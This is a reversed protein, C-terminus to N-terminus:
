VQICPLSIKIETCKSMYSGITISGEMNEIVKHALMMGLGLNSASSGNFSQWISEEMGGKLDNGQKIITIVCSTNLSTSKVELSSGYQMTNISEEFINILARIFYEKNGRIQCDSANEFIIKVMSTDSHTKMLSIVEILAPRLKFSESKNIYPKAFAQYETVVKGIKKLEELAFNYYYNRREEPLSIDEKLLQLLGRSTTLPNKIEDNVAAALEHLSHLKDNHITKMRNNYNSKILEISSSILILGISNLIIYEAWTGPHFLLHGNLFNWLLFVLSFFLSILTGLTIKQIASLKFYLPTILITLLCLIITTFVSPLVGEGGQFVRILITLISLWFGTVPGGYLTGFWLPIRRLDYYIGETQYFSFTMCFLIALSSTILLSYKRLFPSKPKSEYWFQYIVFSSFVVLLNLLLNSAVISM